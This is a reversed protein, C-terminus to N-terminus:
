IPRHGTEVLLWRISMPSVRLVTAYWDPGRNRWGTAPPQLLKFFLPVDFAPACLVSAGAAATVLMNIMLGHLHFLPLVNLGLSSRTLQLTTCVCIAGAGLQGHTLPVLKPRRTTGSTHMLLAVDNRSSCDADVGEGTGMGTGLRAQTGVGTTAPASTSGLGAIMPSCVGQLGVTAAAQLATSQEGSRRLTFLGCTHADPVLEVVRIGSVTAARLAASRGKSTTRAEGALLILAAVPLDGLEFAVDAECLEPNLPAFAYAGDATLALFCAALEAGHSPLSAAIRAGRPLGALAPACGVYRALQRLQDYALPARNDIDPHAPVLFPQGDDPLLDLL